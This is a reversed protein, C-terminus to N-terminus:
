AEPRAREIERAMNQLTEEASQGGTFAADLEDGLVRNIRHFEPITVTRALSLPVTKSQELHVRM